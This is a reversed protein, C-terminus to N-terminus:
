EWRPYKLSFQMCDFTNRSYCLIWNSNLSFNIENWWCAPLIPQTLPKRHLKFATPVKHSYQATAIYRIRISRIYIPSPIASNHHFYAPTQKWQLLGVPILQIFLFVPIDNIANVSHALLWWGFYKPQLKKRHINSTPKTQPNSNIQRFSLIIDTSHGGSSNIFGNAVILHKAIQRLGLQGCWELGFIGGWYLSIDLILPPWFCRRSPLKSQNASCLGHDVVKKRGWNSHTPVSACSIGVPRLLPVGYVIQFRFEQLIWKRTAYNRTKVFKMRNSKKKPLKKELQPEQLEWLSYVGLIRSVM